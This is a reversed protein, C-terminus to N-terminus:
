FRLALFAVILDAVDNYSSPDSDKLFYMIAILADVDNGEFNAQVLFVIFTLRNLVHNITQKIRNIRVIQKVAM